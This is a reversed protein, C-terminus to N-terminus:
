STLNNEEVFTDPWVARMLEDKDLVAGGRDVLYLLTEFAKPTLSLPKGNRNLLLRKAADLRFDGFEYANARQNDM